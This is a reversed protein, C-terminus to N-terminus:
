LPPLCLRLRAGPAGATDLLVPSRATREAEPRRLWAYAAEEPDSRLPMRELTQSVEVVVELPEQAQVRVVLGTYLPLANSNQRFLLLRLTRGSQGTM